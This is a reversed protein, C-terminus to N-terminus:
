KEIYKDATLKVFYNRAKEVCKEVNILSKDVVDVINMGDISDFKKLVDNRFNEDKLCNKPMKQCFLEYNQYRKSLDIEHLTKATIKQISDDSLTKDIESLTADVKMEALKLFGNKHAVYLNQEKESKEIIAYNDKFLGNEIKRIECFSSNSLALENKSDIDLIFYGWDYKERINKIPFNKWNNKKLFDVLVQMKLKYLDNILDVKEESLFNNKKM